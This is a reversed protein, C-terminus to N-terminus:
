RLVSHPDSYTHLYFIEIFRNKHKDNHPITHLILPCFTFFDLTRFEKQLCQLRYSISIFIHFVSDFGWLSSSNAMYHLQTSGSSLLKIAALPPSMVLTSSCHWACVAKGCLLLTTMLLYCASETQQRSDVMIMYGLVWCQKLLFLPKGQNLCPTVM